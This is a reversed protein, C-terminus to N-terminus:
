FLFFLEVKIKSNLNSRNGTSKAIAGVIVPPIGAFFCGFAAMYSLYMASKETRASLVRQFYVQWPIGGFVLVLFTDTYYGYDQRDVTGIWQEKTTSLDAVASNQYAFPIALLLGFFICFLQVVDTYAVSYLGGFLTYVFVVVASVIISIKDDIDM